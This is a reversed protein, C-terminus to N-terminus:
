PTETGSAVVGALAGLAERLEELPVCTYCLRAWTEYGTGSAAGPTLVVGADLCRELFPLADTASREWRRTDFFLFTGGATVPLGLESASLRMADAAQMLLKRGAEDPEAFRDLADGRLRDDLPM